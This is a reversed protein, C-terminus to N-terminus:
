ATRYTVLRDFNRILVETSLYAVKDEVVYLKHPYQLLLDYAGNIVM